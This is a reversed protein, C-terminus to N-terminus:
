KISIRRVVDMNLSSSFSEGRGVRDWSGGAGRGIMLNVSKPKARNM